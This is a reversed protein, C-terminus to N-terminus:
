PTEETANVLPVRVTVTTGKGPTAQFMVRGGWSRAREQMGILGLSKSRTIQSETMGKGNDQVILVLEDADERLEVRVETAEAHRVVTTLTEQFIRFVATLLDEDLTLERDTLHLQCDFGARKAFEQAQWEISAVLGLHDLVGPRLDTAIRRVMHISSDVLESMSAVKALLGDQDVPLRKALWALDMKLATLAQGFEDHIERAIYTRERERADELYGALNRLRRRAAREAEYLQANHIATAIQDALIEMVMVDNEDFANLRPSQVDLVGVVEGSVRLPVALESCDVVQDPCLDAYRPDSTVDDVLLREGHQAVWGVLGQGLAIHSGIALPTPFTGASSKLHLDRARQDMTFLTVRPYGFDQVLRVAETLLEDLELLAALRGGIRNLLALQTVRQALAEEAQERQTREELLRRYRNLQLTTRVRARLEVYEFPKSVFDDAGAEIGRLRSDSDDLATLMIVPVEGLLPDARLRRCVEFGDMSPMMVDLLILDPVLDAAKELAERGDCAVAPQYGEFTLLETLAGRVGADDDVILIRSQADMM